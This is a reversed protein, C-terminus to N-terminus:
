DAARTNHPAIQIVLFRGGLDKRLISEEPGSVDALEVFGSVEFYGVPCLVEHHEGGAFVHGRLWYLYGRAAACCM